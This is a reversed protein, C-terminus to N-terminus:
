IEKMNDWDCDLCFADTDSLYQLNKSGCQPCRQLRNRQRSSNREHFINLYLVRVEPEYIHGNSCRIYGQREVRHLLIPASTINEGCTPCRDPFVEKAVIVDANERVIEVHLGIMEELIVAPNGHSGPNLAEEELLRLCTEQSLNLAVPVIGGGRFSMMISYIRDLISVRQGGRRVRLETNM